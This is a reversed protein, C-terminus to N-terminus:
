VEKILNNLKEQIKMINELKKSFDDANSNMDARLENMNMTLERLM